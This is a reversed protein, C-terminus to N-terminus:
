TGTTGTIIGTSLADANVHMRRELIAHSEAHRHTETYQARKHLHHGLWRRYSHATHTHHTNYTHGDMAHTPPTLHTRFAKAMHTHRPTSPQTTHPYATCRPLVDEPCVCVACIGVVYLTPTVKRMYDADM